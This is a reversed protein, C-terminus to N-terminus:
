LILLSPPCGSSAEWKWAAAAAVAMDSHFCPSWEAGCKCQLVKEFSVSWALLQSRGAVQVVVEKFVNYRSSIYKKQFGTNTPNPIYSQIIPSQISKLLFSFFLYPTSPSMPPYLPVTSSTTPSQNEKKLPLLTAKKTCEIQNIQRQFNPIKPFM